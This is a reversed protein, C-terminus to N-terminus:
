FPIGLSFSILQTKDGSKKIAPFAFDVALPLQGFFPITVRFGAGVDMRINEITIDPEVTGVDVFVVGRLLDEYIPFNVEATSVWMFDGGIPDNRPGERPSVGRFEFGRLSGIGGAYFREFFPSDGFIFGAENRLSFVTKRDFLDTYLPYFWDLKLVLKSMEVDGGIGGYQEWSASMRTGTTPFSRSDTTDRSVAPKISTLFHSGKQDLVEQASDNYPGVLRGTSPDTLFYNADSIGNGNTDSPSKITVQEARFALTASWIDGFRRGFAFIDGLRQEDWTERERTFYYFDNSFSYPSDLLYPEEFTVRYRQFETGPEMLIRFFQGAGKWAQGRMLEGFDRPPNMIDFNSQELSIQGVLGANTSVGAGVLFRGTQGEAVTVLADRVGDPNGAATIPTITVDQFLRTGKLRDISKKVRVMDFTQDPYIRVQRRIVRDQVNPNGRVIVRGVLYPKGETITIRLDVKGPTDTYRTTLEVNRYIYGQEGYLNEIKKQLADIRDREAFAGPALKNDRLVEAESFVENGSVEIKDVQYRPGEVVIFRVTVNKKDESYELSYSVRADLFGKKLYQEKVTVLDSMLKEDDLIGKRFFWFTTKTTVKWKLRGSKINSNGEFLVKRIVSKPGEIVAYRVVGQKLLEKDVDVSTLGFGKKKYMDLITKRDVEIGFTDIGQGVRVTLGDRIQEEKFQRVGTVEVSVVLPREEVVFRVIVQDDTTPVVEARVTVFRETAAITRLDQDSTARTYIQGAQARVQDLIYKAETRVNGVVEVRKIVKGDLSQNAAQGRAQPGAVGITLVGAVVARLLMARRM